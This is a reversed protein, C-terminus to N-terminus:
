DKRIYCLNMLGKMLGFLNRCAWHSPVVMLQSENSESLNDTADKELDNVLYLM